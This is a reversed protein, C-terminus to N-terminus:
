PCKEKNRPSAGVNEKFEVRKIHVGTLVSLPCKNRAWGCIRM